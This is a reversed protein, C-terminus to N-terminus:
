VMESSYWSSERFSGDNHLKVVLSNPLLEGVLPIETCNKVIFLRFAGGIEVGSQYRNAKKRDRKTAERSGLLTDIGRRNRDWTEKNVSLIKPFSDFWQDSKQLFLFDLSKLIVNPVNGTPKLSEIGLATKTFYENLNDSQFGLNWIVNPNVRIDDLRQTCWLNLIDTEMFVTPQGISFIRSRAIMYALFEHSNNLIDSVVMLSAICIPWLDNEPNFAKLNNEQAYILLPDINELSVFVKVIKKPAVLNLSRGNKTRWSSPNSFLSKEGRSLQYRPAEFLEEYKTKIRLPLGVRGQETFQVAKVEVLIALHPLTVLLDAEAENGEHDTYVPNSIVSDSGFMKIFIDSVLQPTQKQRSQNYADNLQPRDVCNSHLWNLAEHAFDVPRAWLKSGDPMGIIPRNQISLKDSLGSLSEQDGVRTTLSELALEIVEIPFDLGSSLELALNSNLLPAATSVIKWLAFMGFASDDGRSELDTISYMKDISDSVADFTSQMLNMQNQALNLVISCPFGMIDNTLKDLPVFIARVIKEVHHQYGETRDFLFELSTVFQATGMASDSFQSVADAMGVDRQANAFKNLLDDLQLLEAFDIQRTLGEIVISPDLSTVLGALFEIAADSGYADGASVFNRRHSDLVQIQSYLNLPDSNTIYNRIENLLRTSETAGAKGRKEILDRYKASDEPYIPTEPTIYSRLYTSPTPKRKTSM